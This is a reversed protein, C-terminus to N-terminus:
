GESGELANLRDAEAGEVVDRIGVGSADGVGTRSGSNSKPTEIIIQRSPYAARAMGPAHNGEASILTHGTASMRAVRPRATASRSVSTTAAFSGEFVTMRVTM